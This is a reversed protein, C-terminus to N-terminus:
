TYQKAECSPPASSVGCIEKGRGGGDHGGVSIFIKVDDEYGQRDTPLEVYMKGSNLM